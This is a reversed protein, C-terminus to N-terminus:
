IIICGTQSKFIKIIKNDKCKLNCTKNISDFMGSMDIEENTNFSLLNLEKLSSCHCFMWSMTTVKNTNFSSLDLKQLSSCHDFMGSMNTVKNTNFSSLNIEKLSSCYCFMGSMDTIKNTNFSSLNIEKLSSCNRFMYSMDTLKNYSILYIIYDGEKDFKYKLINSKIEGNIIIKIEKEIEKNIKGYLNKYNIIQIYKGIDEKKINYICKIFHIKNIIINM